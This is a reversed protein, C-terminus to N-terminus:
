SGKIEFHHIENGMAYIPKIEDLLYHKGNPLDTDIDGLGVYTDNDFTFYNDKLTLEKFLEPDIYKSDSDIKDPFVFLNLLSTNSTGEKKPAKAHTVEYRVGSVVTRHYTFGGTHNSAIQNWITITHPFM